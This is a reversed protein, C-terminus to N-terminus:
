AAASFEPEGPEGPMDADSEPHEGARRSDRNQYIMVGATFIVWVAAILVYVLARSHM